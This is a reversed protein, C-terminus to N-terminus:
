AGQSRWIREQKCLSLPLSLFVPPSLFPPLSLCLPLSLPLALSRALSLCHSLSASLCTLHPSPFPSAHSTAGQARPAWEGGGERGGEEGVCVRRRALVM